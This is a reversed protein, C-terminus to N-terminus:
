VLNELIRGIKQAKQEFYLLNRSSRNLAIPTVAGIRCNQNEMTLATNQYIYTQFHTKSTHIRQLSYFILEVTL